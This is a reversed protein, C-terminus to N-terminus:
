YKGSKYTRLFPGSSYQPAYATWRSCSSLLLAAALALIYLTKM